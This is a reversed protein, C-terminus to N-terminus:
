KGWHWTSHRRVGNKIRIFFKYKREGCILCRLCTEVSESEGLIFDVSEIVYGRCRPCGGAGVRFASEYSTIGAEMGVGRM